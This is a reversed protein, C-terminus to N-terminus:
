YVPEVTYGARELLALLGQEGPLHLAGIAIFAAGQQLYPGMRQFLRGNREFLLKQLLHRHRPTETLEYRNAASVLGALDRQLYLRKMQQIDQQLIDFHCVVDQVLAVQEAAPLAAVADIQESVTELGAVLKGAQEARLALDLDLPLGESADPPTSLTLYITWPKLRAAIAPPIGYRSLLRSAREFLAPGLQEQLTGEEATIVHQTWLASDGGDLLAEMVYRRSREFASAVPDPLVTVDQGSLHITGFLYSPSLDPKTIRWLLGRRHREPTEHRATSPSLRPCILEDPLAKGPVVIFVAWALALLRLARHTLSRLPM